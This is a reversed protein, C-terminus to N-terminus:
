SVDLPESLVSPTVALREYLADSSCYSLLEAPANEIQVSFLPPPPDIPAEHADVVVSLPVCVTNDIVKLASPLPVADTLMTPEPAVGVSMSFEEVCLTQFPENGAALKLRDFGEDPEEPVEDCLEEPDALLLGLVVGLLVVVEVGFGGVVIVVLDVVGDVVAVACGASAATVM